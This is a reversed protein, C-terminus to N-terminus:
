DFAIRIKPDSLCAANEFDLSAAFHRRTLSVLSSPSHRRIEFLCLVAVWAAALLVSVKCAAELFFTANIFM